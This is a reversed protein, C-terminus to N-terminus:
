LEAIEQIAELGDALGELSEQRGDPYLITVGSAPGGYLCGTKEWRYTLKGTTPISVLLGHSIGLHGAPSSWEQYSVEIIERDQPTLIEFTAGGRYGCSVFIDYTTFVPNPRLLWNGKASREIKSSPVPFKIEEEGESITVLRPSVWVRASTRGHYESGADPAYFTKGEVEKKILKM